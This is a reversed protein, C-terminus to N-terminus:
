YGIAQRLLMAHAAQAHVPGHESMANSGPQGRSTGAAWQSGGNHVVFPVFHHM